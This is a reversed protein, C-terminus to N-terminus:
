NEIWNEVGSDYSKICNKSVGFLRHTKEILLEVDGSKQRKTVLHIEKLNQPRRKVFVEKVYGDTIPFSYGIIILQEAECIAASMGSCINQGYVNGEITNHRKFEVKNAVLGVISPQYLRNDKYGTKDLTVPTDQPTITSQGGDKIHLWNVSGHPKLVNIKGDGNANPLGEYFWNDLVQELLTDYNFSIYSLKRSSKIKEIKSRLAKYKYRIGDNGAVSFQACAVKKLEWAAFEFFYEYPSRSVFDKFLFESYYKFPLNEEGKASAVLTEFWSDIDASRLIVKPRERNEDIENWCVELRESLWKQPLISPQNLSYIRQLVLSLFPAKKIEAECVRMFDYDTPLNALGKSCGAGIIVVTRM